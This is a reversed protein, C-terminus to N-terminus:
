VCTVRRLNPELRDALQRDLNQDNQKDSPKDYASRQCVM